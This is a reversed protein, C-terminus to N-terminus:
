QGEKSDYFIYPHLVLDKAAVSQGMRVDPEDDCSPCYIYGVRIQDGHRLTGNDGDIIQTVLIMGIPGGTIPCNSLRPDEEDDGPVAHECAKRLLPAYVCTSNASM